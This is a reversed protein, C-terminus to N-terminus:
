NDKVFGHLVGEALYDARKHFHRAPATALRLLLPFGLEIEERRVGADWECLVSLADPYSTVFCVEVDFLGLAFEVSHSSMMAPFRGKGKYGLSLECQDILRRHHTWAEGYGKVARLLTDGYLTSSEAGGFLTDWAEGEPKLDLRDRFYGALDQGPYNLDILVTHSIGDVVVTGDRAEELRLVAIKYSM